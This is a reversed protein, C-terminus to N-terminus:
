RGPPQVGRGQGQGQGQGRGQGPGGVGRGGPVGRGAAASYVFVWENYHNRGNYLKISKDKSKSVVGAFGGVLMTQSGSAPVGIVAQQGSQSTSQTTAGAVGRVAGTATQGAQGAAAAPVFLFEGDAAMPDKYKKRLFRQQLLLEVNPPYGGGLKRQYLGVARAYQMGRFILEEEKERQNVQHWVPMAVTLMIGMVAIGVMLVAMAYGADQRGVLVAAARFKRM